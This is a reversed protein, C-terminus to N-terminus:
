GDSHESDMGDFEILSDESELDSERALSHSGVHEYLTHPIENLFRSPLNFNRFGYLKRSSAYILHLKERARTMGVYCLRREEEIESSSQSMANVHPFIEEEMGVMFVVPFELGKATHLTMLTLTDEEANWSDLDTQLSISEIFDEIMRERAEDSCNEEFEYAVGIFEQLNEIRSQAELSREKELEELYGTKELIEKLAESPLLDKKRAKLDEILACFRSLAQKVKAGFGGERCALAAAEYLSGGKELRLKELLELTKKGIGRQPVNLVRKLSVEDQPFVVLKLYAMLDKIEKRDYFRIGGVIKYPIKYRRLTDELVRSQAHVRYFVVLDQLRLGEQRHNMVQYTVYLAEEREDGAEFLCIKEGAGRESWLNKHKRQSNHQILQNAADLIHTTSRYNQELKIWKANPYDKEFNLINTIDAGRWSYISQDPDGVVTIEKYKRALNTVFRYQAHNTDQYEDILVYKFREQYGELIRPHHEFLEVAKMILDGFDVAQFSQLKKQYMAYAKATVEDFFDGAQAALEPPRRLYDKARSIAERVAKPNVQRDELGLEALCEKIVVLQDHDDYIAFDRRMGVAEAEQRLIRMCISHFTSIWVERETLSKVREKMVGSAKNTFTVGLINFAPVGRSLFYAIRHTLVRTKGSGAGALILLPGGEYCVAEKQVGNLDTFIDKSM